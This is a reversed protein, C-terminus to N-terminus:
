PTILNNNHGKETPMKNASWANFDGELHTLKSFGGSILDDKAIGARRGSRCYLVIDRDKHALIENMRNKIQLHPINIAGPVHGKIYEDATRVDIVFPKDNSIMQKFLENQSIDTANGSFTIVVSLCIILINKLKINM